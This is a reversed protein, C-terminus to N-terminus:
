VHEWDWVIDLSMRYAALIVMAAELSWSVRPEPGMSVWATHDPDPGGVVPSSFRDSKVGMSVVAAGLSDSVLTAGRCLTAEEDEGDGLRLERRVRETPM